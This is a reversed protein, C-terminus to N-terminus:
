GYIQKANMNKRLLKKVELNEMNLAYISPRPKILFKEDLLQQIIKHISSMSKNTISEALERSSPMYFNKCFYRVIYNKCDDYYTDGICINEIKM